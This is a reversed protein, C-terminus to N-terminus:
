SLNRIFEGFSKKTKIGTPTFHTKKGKLKDLLEDIRRLKKKNWKCIKHTEYYPPFEQEEKIIRVFRSINPLTLYSELKEESGKQRILHSYTISQGRTPGSKEQIDKVKAWWKKLIEDCFEKSAFDGLYISGLLKIKGKCHKCKDLIGRERFGCNYCYSLYDFNELLNNTRGAGREVKGFVRFYHRKYYSFIPNFAMDYRAFNKITASILIRLGLEKSFDVRSSKIGYRRLCTLPSTGSLPGTDTATIAVIGNNKISNAASDLFFIPSGFPDIDIFDFMEEELLINADKKETRIKLKNLKANKEALKIASPNKDNVVVESGRSVSKYRLGRVGSAGLCDCIKKPKVISVIVESLYRDFKMEPNYFVSAKKTLEEGKPVYLEVNGEKTKKTKMIISNSNIKKKNMPIRKPIKAPKTGPMWGLVRANRM